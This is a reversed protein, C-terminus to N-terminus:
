SVRELPFVLEDEGLPAFCGEVTAADLEALTAPSWRPSQDKDIITARVGEYFDPM